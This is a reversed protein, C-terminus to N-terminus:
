LNGAGPVVGPDRDGASLVTGPVCCASQINISLNPFQSQHIEFGRLELRLERKQTAQLTEALTTPSFSTFISVCSLFDAFCSNYQTSFLLFFSINGRFCKAGDPVYYTSLEYVANNNIMMIMIVMIKTIILSCIKQTLFIM